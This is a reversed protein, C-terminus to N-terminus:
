GIGVDFMKLLFTAGIAGEYIDRSLQSASLSQKNPFSGATPDALIQWRDKDLLREAETLHELGQMAYDNNSLGFHQLKQGLIDALRHQCRAAERYHSVDLYQDGAAQYLKRAQELCPWDTIRTNFLKSKFWMFYCLAMGETTSATTIPTENQM